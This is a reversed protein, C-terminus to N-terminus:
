SRRAAGAPTVATGAASANPRWVPPAASARSRTPNPRSKKERPPAEHVVTNPPDDPSSPGRGRGWRGPLGVAGVADASPVVRRAPRNRTATRTPIPRPSTMKRRTLTGPPRTRRLTRPVPTRPTREARNAGGAAVAVAVAAAGATQRGTGPNPTPTTRPGRYRRGEDTGEGNTRDKDSATPAAAVPQPAVFLPMYAPTEAEPDGSDAPVGARGRCRAAARTPWCKLPWLRLPWSRRVRLADAQDVSSQASRTRGDLESLADLVRRSTTGLVRALTHVEAARAPGGPRGTVFARRRPKPCIRTATM